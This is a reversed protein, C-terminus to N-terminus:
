GCPRTRTMCSSVRPGRSWSAASRRTAAGSRTSGSGHDDKFRVTSASSRYPRYRTDPLEAKSKEIALVAWAFDRRDQSALDKTDRDTRLFEKFAEEDGDAAQVSQVIRRWLEGESGAARVRAEETAEAKRAAEEARKLRAAKSQKDEYVGMLEAIEKDTTLVAVEAETLPFGGLKEVILDDVRRKKGAQHAAEIEAVKQPDLVKVETPAGEDSFILFSNRRLYGM